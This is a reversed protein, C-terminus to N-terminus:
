RSNFIRSSDLVILLIVTTQKLVAVNLYSKCRQCSIIDLSYVADSKPKTKQTKTRTPKNNNNNINTKESLVDLKNLM